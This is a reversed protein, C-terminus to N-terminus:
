PGPGNKVALRLMGRRAFGAVVNVQMSLLWSPHCPRDHFYFWRRDLLLRVVRGPDRIIRGRRFKRRRKGGRWSSPTM